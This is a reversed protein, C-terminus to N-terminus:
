LQVGAPAVTPGSEGPPPQLRDPLLFVRRALESELTEKRYFRDLVPERWSMLDLNRRSFTDWDLDQPREQMRQRILLLYAWTITEHYKGSAGRSAAFRRLGAAFRSLAEEAGYRRLYLWALRVHDEHHFDDLSCDEFRSVFDREGSDWVELATKVPAEEDIIM